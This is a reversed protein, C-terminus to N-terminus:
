ISSKTFHYLHPPSSDVVSLIVKYCTIANGVKCWVLYYVYTYLRAMHIMYMYLAISYPVHLLLNPAKVTFDFRNEGEFHKQDDDVSCSGQDRGSEREEASICFLPFYDFISGSSHRDQWTKLGSGIPKIVLISLDRKETSMFTKKNTTVHSIDFKRITAGVRLMGNDQKLIQSVCCTNADM